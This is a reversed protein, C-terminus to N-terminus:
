PACAGLLRLRESTRDQGARGELRPVECGPKVCALAPLRRCPQPHRPTEGRLGQLDQGQVLHPSFLLSCYFPATCRRVQEGQLMFKSSIAKSSLPRPLAVAMSLCQEITHELADLM